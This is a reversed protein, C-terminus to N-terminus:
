KGQVSDVWSLCGPFNVVLFLYRAEWNELEWGPTLGLFPVLIESKQDQMPQTEPVREGKPQWLSQAVCREQVVTWGGKGLERAFNWPFLRHGSFSFAGSLLAISVVASRHSGQRHNVWSPTGLGALLLGLADGPM